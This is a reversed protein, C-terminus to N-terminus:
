RESHPTMEFTCESALEIGLRICEDCSRKKATKIDKCVAAGCEAEFKKCVHDAIAYTSKKSAPTDMNGDSNKLGALFIVASLAGCAQERGGMGAGFGEMARSVLAPDLGYEKAFPIAVAQACNFGKQHLQMAQKLKEETNKM